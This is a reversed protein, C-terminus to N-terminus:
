EAQMTAGDRRNRVAVSGEDLPRPRPGRLASVRTRNGYPAGGTLAADSIMSSKPRFLGVQLSHFVSRENNSSRSPQIPSSRAAQRAPTVSSRRWARTALLQRSRMRLLAPRQSRRQARKACGTRRAIICTRRIVGTDCRMASARQHSHSAMHPSSSASIGRGHRRLRAHSNQISPSTLRSPVVTNTRPKPSAYVVTVFM